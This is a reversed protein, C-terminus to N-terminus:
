YSSIIKSAAIKRQPALSIWECVLGLVISNSYEHAIINNVKTSVFNGRYGLRVTTAGFHFDASLMNEFGFFNGWWAAHALGKTDGLYIQYYLQGYNPSFFAGTLPMRAQYMITFPLAGIKHKWAAFASADLTASCKASAPNNGNRSLYMVGLDLSLGPGIGVSLNCPLQWRHMMTWSGEAILNVLDSNQSQNKTMDGRLGMSLKMTWNEPDFKMAQFRQYLLGLHTGSYKLPSLYTDALRGSGVEVMYASTVPRVTLVSDGQAWLCCHCILVLLLVTIKRM